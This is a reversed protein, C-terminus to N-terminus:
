SRRGHWVHFDHILTKFKSKFANLDTRKKPDGADGIHAPSGDSTANAFLSRVEEIGYVQQWKTEGFKGVTGGQSQILLILIEAEATTGNKENTVFHVIEDTLDRFSDAIEAARDGTHLSDLGGSVDELLDTELRADAPLKRLQDMIRWKLRQSLLKMLRLVSSKQPSKHNRDELHEAHSNLWQLCQEAVASLAHFDLAGSLVEQVLVSWFHDDGFGNRPLPKHDPHTFTKMSNYLYQRVSNHMVFDLLQLRYHLQEVIQFFVTENATRESDGMGSHQEDAQQDAAQLLTGLPSTVDPSPQAQASQSDFEGHLRRFCRDGDVTGYIFRLAEQLNQERAFQWFRETRTDVNENAMQSM